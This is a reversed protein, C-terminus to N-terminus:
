KRRGIKQPVRLAEVDAFLAEIDGAIEKIPARLPAERAYLTREVSLKEVKSKVTYFRLSIREVLKREGEPLPQTKLSSLNDELFMATLYYLDRAGPVDGLLLSEVSIAWQRSKTALDEVLFSQYAEEKLVKIDRRTGIISFALAVGVVVMILINIVLIIDTKKTTKM